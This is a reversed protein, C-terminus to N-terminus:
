FKKSIKKAEFSVKKLRNNYVELFDRTNHGIWQDAVLGLLTATNDSVLVVFEQSLAFNVLDYNGDEGAIVCFSSHVDSINEATQRSALHEDRKALADTVLAKGKMKSSISEIFRNYYKLDEIERGGVILFDSVFGREKFPTNQKRFVLNRKELQSGRQSPLANSLDKTEFSRFFVLPRGSVTVKELYRGNFLPRVGYWGDQEYNLDFLDFYTNWAPDVIYSGFLTETEEHYFAFIADFETGELVEGLLSRYKDPFSYLRPNTYIIRDFYPAICDLIKQDTGIFFCVTEMNSDSAYREITSAFSSYLSPRKLYRDDAIALLSSM